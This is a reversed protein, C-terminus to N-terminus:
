SCKTPLVPVTRQLKLFCGGFQLHNQKASESLEQVIAMKFPHFNIWQVATESLSLLTVCYWVLQKPNQIVAMCVQEMNEPISTIHPTGPSKM